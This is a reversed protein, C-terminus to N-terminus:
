GISTTSSTNDLREHARRLPHQNGLHELCHEEASWGYNLRAAPPVMKAIIPLVGM